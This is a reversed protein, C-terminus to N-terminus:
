KMNRCPHNEFLHILKEEHLLNKVSSIFKIRQANNMVALEICYDTEGERGWSLKKYTIKTNTKKIYDEIFNEMKNAAGHNIGSGISYFSVVLNNLGQVEDTAAQQQKPADAPKVGSSKKECHCATAMMFALFIIKSKM